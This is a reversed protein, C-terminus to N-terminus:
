SNLRIETSRKIKKLEELFTENNNQSFFDEANDKYKECLSDILSENTCLINSKRSAIFILRKDLIRQIEKYEGNTEERIGDNMVWGNSLQDANFLKNKYEFYIQENNTYRDEIAKNVENTEIIILTDAFNHLHKFFHISEIKFELNVGNLRYIINEEDITELRNFTMNSTGEQYELETIDSTKNLDNIIEKINTDFRKLKYREPVDFTYKNIFSDFEYIEDEFSPKKSNKFFDKIEQITQFRYEQKEQLLKRVVQEFIKYEDSYNISGQGKLYNGTLMWHIIQGLAFLDTAYTVSAGKIFQEPASCYANALREGDKTEHLKIYLEDDFSAIDFDGLVFYGKYLFINEPKIDRHIIKHTHIDEIINFLNEVIKNFERIDFNGNKKLELIREKLTKDAKPMIIYPVFLQQNVELKDMHLQPLISPSNITGLNLHAQKFRKFAKSGGDKINENLFKIAYENDKFKFGKVMSTGGQGLVKLVLEFEGYINTVKKYSNIYSNLDSQLNSLSYINTSGPTTLGTSLYTEITNFEKNVVDDREHYQLKKSKMLDYFHSLNSCIKIINPIYSKLSYNELLEEKLAKYDIENEQTIKSRGAAIFLNKLYEIKEKDTELYEKSM